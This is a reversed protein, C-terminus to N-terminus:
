KNSCNGSNMLLVRHASCSLLLGLQKNGTVMLWCMLKFMHRRQQGTCFYGHEVVSSFVFYLSIAMDTVDFCPLQPYCIKGERM